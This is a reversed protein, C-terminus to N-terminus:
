CPRAPRHHHPTHTGTTPDNEFLFRGFLAFLDVFNCIEQSIM